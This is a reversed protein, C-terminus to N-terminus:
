IGVFNKYIPIFGKGNGIIAYRSLSNEGDTNNKGMSASVILQVGKRPNFIFDLNKYNLAIGYMTKTFNGYSSDSINDNLTLRNSTTYDIFTKIFNNGNFFYNVSINSNM